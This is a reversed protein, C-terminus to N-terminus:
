EESDLEDESGPAKVETDPYIEVRNGGEKKATYLAENLRKFVLDTLLRPDKVETNRVSCIGASVTIQLSEDGCTFSRGRIQTRLRSARNQAEQIDTSSMLITFNTGDLHGLKENERIMPKLYIAVDKIIQDGATRGHKENIDGLNDVGMLIFSIPENDSISKRVENPVIARLFTIRNPLGTLDDTGALRAWRRNEERLREVEKKLDVSQRELTEIRGQLSQISDEEPM